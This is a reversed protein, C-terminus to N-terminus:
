SIPRAKNLADFLDNAENRLTKDANYLVGNVVQRRV